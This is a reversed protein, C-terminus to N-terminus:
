PSLEYLVGADRNPGGEQTTGFLNGSACEIVGNGPHTGEECDALSCFSYFMWYSGRM